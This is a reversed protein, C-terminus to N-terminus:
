AFIRGAIDNLGCAGGRTHSCKLSTSAAASSKRWFATPLCSKRSLMPGTVIARPFIRWLRLGCSESIPFFASGNMRALPAAQVAEILEIADSLRRNKPVNQSPSEECIESYDFQYM